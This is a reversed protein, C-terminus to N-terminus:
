PKYYYIRVKEKRLVQQALELGESL